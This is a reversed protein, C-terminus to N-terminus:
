IPKLTNATMEFAQHVDLCAFRDTILPKDIQYGGNAIIYRQTHGFIQYFPFPYDQDKIKCLDDLDNWVCSGVPNDGRRLESVWELSEKTYNTNLAEAIATATNEVMGYHAEKWIPHVGAHTFLLSRNGCTTAYAMKIMDKASEMMESVEDFNKYDVRNTTIAIDDVYTLDHNGYLMVVKERNERAFSLVERFNAFSMRPAIHEHPYPDHYDGLFIILDFDETHEVAQKWFPRGHIDPIILIRNM